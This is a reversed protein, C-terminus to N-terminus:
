KTKKKKKKFSQQEARRRGGRRSFDSGLQARTVANGKGGGGGSSWSVREEELGKLPDEKGRKVEPNCLCFSEWPWDCTAPPM